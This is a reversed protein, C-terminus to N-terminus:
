APAEMGDRMGALRTVLRPWGLRPLGSAARVGPRTDGEVGCVGHDEDRGAGRGVVEPATIAEAVIEVGIAHDREVCPGALM